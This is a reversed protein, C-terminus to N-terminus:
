KSSNTFLKNMQAMWMVCESSTVEGSHRGGEFFVAPKETDKGTEKNTLAMQFIPRGEFSRDVEYVEVLGTYEKERLRLWSCIVEPSHCAGFALTDGPEYQVGPHKVVPFYNIGHRFGTMSYQINKNEPQAALLAPILTLGALIHTKRM